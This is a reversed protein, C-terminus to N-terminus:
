GEFGRARAEAIVPLQKGEYFDAAFQKARRAFKAAEFYGINMVVANAQEPTDDGILCLLYMYARVFLRGRHITYFWFAAASLIVIEM